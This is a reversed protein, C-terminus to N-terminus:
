NLSYTRILSGLFELWFLSKFFLSYISIQDRAHRILLFGNSMLKSATFETCQRYLIKMDVFGFKGSDLGFHAIGCFFMVQMEM